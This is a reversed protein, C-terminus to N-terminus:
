RRDRHWVRTDPSILVEEPQEALDFATIFHELLVLSAVSDFLADHWIKQPVLQKVKDSLSFQNCLDGLAHSPLEPFAARYLLLTDVWPGFGHGPFARLYRKETGHGHAVVMNSGLTAKIQPWLAM